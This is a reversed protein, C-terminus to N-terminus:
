TEADIDVDKESGGPSGRRHQCRGEGRGWGEGWRPRGVDLLTSVVLLFRPSHSGEEDTDTRIEMLIEVSARVHAQFQTGRVAFHM